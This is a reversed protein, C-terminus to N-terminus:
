NGGDQPGGTAPPEVPLGAERLRDELALAYDRAEALRAECDARVAGLEAELATVRARLAQAEQGGPTPPAALGSAGAERVLGRAAFARAEAASLEVVQGAPVVGDRGHYTVALVVKKKAAM